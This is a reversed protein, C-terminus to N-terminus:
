RSIHFGGRGAAKARYLAEDARRLLGEGDTDGAIRMAIGISTSVVRPTGGLDVPEGMSAIIKQAVIQAEDISHLSELIIVFEDGALRAVTDTIRVNRTLRAAYERLLLDGAKHGLSDNVSKFHDLDLFMLAMQGASRESRAIAEVLRENFQLRNALGTLSDTRAIDRLELEIRKLESIDHILGFVGLVKGSEDSEPVYTVSVHRVDPVPVDMEFSVQEGALARDINPEIIQFTDPSYIESLRHGTIESMPRRLWTAYALNNFRFIKESDIYSILAPVNDTILRLRREAAVLSAEAERNGTIDQVVGRFGAFAGTSDQVPRAQSLLVRNRGMRDRTHLLQNDYARHERLPAMYSTLAPADPFRLRYAQEPTLGIMQSPELGMATAFSPSVYCLRLEADTEWFGDAAIEAFDTFRAASALADSRTIAETARTQELALRFRRLARQIITAILASALGFVLPVRDIASAVWAPNPTIPFSYDSRRLGAVVLLEAVVLVTWIFGARPSSLLVAFLLLTPMAINAGLSRGGTALNTFTVLAFMVVLLVRGARSPEAGRSLWVLTAIIMAVGALYVWGLANSGRALESASFLGASLLEFAGFGLVLEARFRQEPEDTIRTPLLWDIM